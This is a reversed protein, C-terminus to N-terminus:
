RKIPRKLESVDLTIIEMTPILNVIKSKDVRSKNWHKGKGAEKYVLQINKAINRYLMEKTITRFIAIFM